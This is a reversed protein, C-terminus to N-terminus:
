SKCITPRGARPWGNYPDSHRRRGRGGCGNWPSLGRGGRSVCSSRATRSRLPCNASSPSARRDSCASGDSRVDDGVTRYVYADDRAVGCNLLNRLEDRKEPTYSDWEDLLLTPLRKEILRFVSAATINMAPVPRRVLHQLITQTRSKGCRLAPSSICLIPSIDAAELAHTHLAWLAEAVAAEDPQVIYRKISKLVEDLLEEGGVPEPWPEVDVVEVASGQLDQEPRASGNANLVQVALDELLPRAEARVGEPLRGVLRQRVTDSALLGTDLLLLEPSDGRLVMLSARGGGLATAEMRLTPGERRIGRLSRAPAFPTPERSLLDAESHSGSVSIAWVQDVATKFARRHLEPDVELGERRFGELEHEYLLRVTECEGDSFGHDILEKKFEGQLAPHETLTGVVTTLSQSPTRV